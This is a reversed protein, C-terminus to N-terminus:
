REEPVPPLGQGGGEVYTIAVPLGAAGVKGVDTLRVVARGSPARDWDHLIGEVLDGKSLTVLPNVKSGRGVPDLATDVWVAPM